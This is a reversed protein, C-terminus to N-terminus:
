RNAFQKQKQLKWGNLTRMEDTDNTFIPIEDLDFYEEISYIIDMINELLFYSCYDPSLTFTACQIQETKFRLSSTDCKLKTKIDISDLYNSGDSWNIFPGEEFENCPQMEKPFVWVFEKAWERNMYAVYNHCLAPESPGDEYDVNYLDHHEDIHIVTLPTIISGKKIWKKLIKLVHHHEIVFAVPINKPIRKIFKNLHEVPNHKYNWFDLDIDLWISM